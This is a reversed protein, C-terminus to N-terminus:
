QRTRGTRGRRCTPQMYCPYTCEGGHRSPCDDSHGRSCRAGEPDRPLVGTERLVARARDVSGPQSWLRNLGSPHPLLVLAPRQPLSPVLMRATVSARSYTFPIFPVDFAAAVKAGCLVIVDDPGREAMLEAARKRAAPLSWKPHCLDVRDYNRLYDRVSIGMVFTCLRGGSARPPEPYLAYRMADEATKQYPNNEAVLLPKM